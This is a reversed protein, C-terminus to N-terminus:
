TTSSPDKQQIRGTQDIQSLIERLRAIAEARSSFGSSSLRRGDLTRYSVSWSRNAKIVLDEQYQPM